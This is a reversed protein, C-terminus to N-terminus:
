SKYANLLLRKGWKLFDILLVEPNGGDVVVHNPQWPSTQASSERYQTQIKKNIKPPSQIKESEEDRSSPLLLEELQQKCM